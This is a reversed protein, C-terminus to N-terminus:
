TLVIDEADYINKIKHFIDDITNKGDILLYIDKAVENLFLLELTKSFLILFGNNDERIKRHNALPINKKILNYELM